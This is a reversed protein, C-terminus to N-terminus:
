MQSFSAPWTKTKGLPLSSSAAASFARERQIFPGPASNSTQGPSFPLSRRRGLSRDRGIDDATTSGSGARPSMRATVMLSRVPETFRTLSEPTLTM